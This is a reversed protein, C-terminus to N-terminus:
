SNLGSSMQEVTVAGRKIISKKFGELKKRSDPGLDELRNNIRDLITTEYTIGELVVVHKINLIKKYDFHPDDLKKQDFYSIMKYINLGHKGPNDVVFHMLTPLSQRCVLQNYVKDFEFGEEKMVVLVTPFDRAEMFECVEEIIKKPVKATSALARGVNHLDGTNTGSMSVEGGTQNRTTCDVCNEDAMATFSLLLAITMLLNKM